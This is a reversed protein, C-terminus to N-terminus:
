GKWFDSEIEILEMELETVASQGNSDSEGSQLTLVEGEIQEIEANLIALDADDTAIDDGEWVSAPILSAYSIKGPKEPRDPRDPKPFFTISIASIIIVAAAVAAIEYTTKRFRSTKITRSRM